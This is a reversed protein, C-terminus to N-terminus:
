SKTSTQLIIQIPWLARTSSQEPAASLGHLLASIWVTNVAIFLIPEALDSDIKPIILLAFLATALNTQAADLFLLVILAVEAVIHLMNEAGAQPMVGTTSWLYGFGIFLKPATLITSSLRRAVMTFCITFLALLLLGIM